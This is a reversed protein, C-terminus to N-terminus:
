RVIAEAEAPNTRSDGSGTREAINDSIDADTKGANMDRRTETFVARITTEDRGPALAPFARRFGIVFSAPRM